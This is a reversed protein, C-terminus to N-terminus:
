YDIADLFPRRGSGDRRGCPVPLHTGREGKPIAFSGECLLPPDPVTGVTDWERRGPLAGRGGCRCAVRRVRCPSGRCSRWWEAQQSVWGRRWASPPDRLRGHTRASGPKQGSRYPHPGPAGGRGTTRGERRPRRTFVPRRGPSRGPSQLPAEGRGAAERGEPTPAHARPLPGPRGPLSPGQGVRGVREGYLSAPSERRLLPPDPGAGRRSGPFPM